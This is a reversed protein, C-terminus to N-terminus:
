LKLDKTRLIFFCLLDIEKHSTLNSIAIDRIPDRCLQWTSCGRFNGQYGALMEQHHSQIEPNTYRYANYFLLRKVCDILLSNRLDFIYHTMRKM